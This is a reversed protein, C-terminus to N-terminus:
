REVVFHVYSVSSGTGIRLLYQGSAINEHESLKVTEQIQGHQPLIDRSFIVKGTIDLVDYHVKDETAGNTKGVLVFDGNNPNPSLTFTNGESKLGPVGVRTLYDGYVVFVNSTDYSRISCAASCNILCYVTDNGYVAVTYTSSTAGPVAHGNKFWQFTASAGCFTVESNFSVLQGLYSISDGASSFISDVPMVMPNVLMTVNNSAVTDPSPCVANSVMDCKIVDGDAPLYRYTPGTGVPISFKFWTYAPASGGNVPTPTFTVSDGGCVTDGPTAAITVSPVVVANVTITAEATVTGCYNVVTYIATDLGTVVGTFAGAIHSTHSNTHSWTGGGASDVLTITSGPCVWSPGTITGAVPLPYVTIPLTTTYSGCVNTVTYTVTDLGPTVGMIRDATVVANTNTVGFTGGTVTSTLYVVAAPCVRGSVYITGAYPAGRYQIVINNSSTRITDGSVNMMVCRITDGGHLGGTTFGVSDTGATASNIYWQYHTPGMTIVSAIFHVTDGVCISDRSAAISVSPVLIINIASDTLVVPNDDFYIGAHGYIDTGNALGGLANISYMVDGSCHGHHSSDLLKINPFEFKVITHGGSHLYTTNMKASAMDVNLTAANLNDSLTDLVYINQATDNGDNEFHINYHLRTGNIIYGAPFVVTYNPDFSAKATDLHNVYNSTTDVDGATPTVTVKTRITDGPTHWTSPVELHYYLHVPASDAGSVSPLYWILTTDTISTPPPTADSYHYSSDYRVAVYAATSTSYPNSVYIDAQNRHRGVRESSTVMLDFGSASTLVLPVSFGTATYGASGVTDYIIGSSPCEVRLFPAIVKYGYVAGPAGYEHYYLGSTTSFTDLVVGNSDVEIGLSAINPFDTASEYTCDSNGDYYLSLAIDHCVTYNLNYTISDRPSSGYFLIHKVTYTGSTTYSHVFSDQYYPTSGGVSNYDATGDGYYTALHLTATPSNTILKFKAGSCNVIPTISFSDAIESGVPLVPLGRSACFFSTVSFIEAMGTHEGMVHGATSVSAVYTSSSGWTGASFPSVFIASDGTVLAFPGTISSDASSSNSIAINYTFTSWGCTLFVDYEVATHGLVFGTLEGTSPDITAIATSSVSWSGGAISATYSVPIDLCVVSPGSLSFRTSPTDVTVVSTAYHTGCSNTVSYTLTATGIGIGHVNASYESVGITDVTAVSVNSSTWVGGATSDYISATSGLCLNVDPLSAVTNSEGIATHLMTDRCGSTTNTAVVAFEGEYSFSGFDIASGTGSIASGDASSYWYLQYTVGSESGSLTIHTGSTICYGGSPSVSYVTPCQAHAFLATCLSLLLLFYNKM